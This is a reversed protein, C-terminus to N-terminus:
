WVEDSSRAVGGDQKGEARKGHGCNYPWGVGSIERPSICSKELKWRTRTVTDGAIGRRHSDDRLGTQFLGHQRRRINLPEVVPRNAKVLSARRESVNCGPLKSMLGFSIEDTPKLM